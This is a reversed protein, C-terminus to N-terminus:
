LYVTTHWNHINQLIDDENYHCWVATVSVANLRTITKSTVYQLLVCYRLTMKFIFYTCFKFIYNCKHCFLGSISPNLRYKTLLSNLTLLDAPVIIVMHPHWSYNQVAVRLTLTNNLSNTKKELQCIREFMWLINVFVDMTIKQWVSCNTDLQLAGVFM